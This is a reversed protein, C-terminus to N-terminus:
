YQLCRSLSRWMARPVSQRILALITMKMRIMVTMMVMMMMMMVSMLLMIAMTIMVMVYRLYGIEQRFM